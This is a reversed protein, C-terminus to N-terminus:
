CRKHLGNLCLVDRERGWLKLILISFWLGSMKKQEKWFFRETDERQEQLPEKRQM